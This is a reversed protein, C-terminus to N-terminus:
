KMGECGRPVLTTWFDPDDANYCAVTMAIGAFELPTTNRQIHWSGWDKPKVIGIRRHSCYGMEVLPNHAFAKEPNRACLQCQLLEHRADMMTEQPKM